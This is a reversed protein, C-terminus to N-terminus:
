FPPLELDVIQDLQSAFQRAVDREDPNANGVAFSLASHMFGHLNRCEGAELEIVASVLIKTKM